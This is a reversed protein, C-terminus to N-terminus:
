AMEALRSKIESRLENLYNPANQRLIEIAQMQVEILGQVVTETPLDLLMLIQSVEERNRYVFEDFFEDAVFSASRNGAIDEITHSLLVDVTMPETIEAEEPQEVNETEEPQTTKESKM